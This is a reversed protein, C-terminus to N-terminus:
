ALHTVAHRFRKGIQLVRGDDLEVAQTYESVAKVRRVCGTNVISSRHIRVFRRPDLQALVGAMTARVLLGRQATHIKVFDGQGEVWRVDAQDLFHLEGDVKFVLRRESRAPAPAGKKELCALLDRLAQETKALEGGSLRRRARAVAAAFRADTFPKVLYDVASQEFARVAYEDFATTFIIEPRRAPLIKALVELGDMLPMQVDLFVLDPRERGILALAERGNAAEAAVQFDPERRLLTRVSSRAYPEDDVILAKFPNNM